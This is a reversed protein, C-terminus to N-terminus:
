HVQGNFDLVLFWDMCFVVSGSLSSVLLVDILRFVIICVYFIHESFSVSYDWVLPNVANPTKEIVLKYENETPCPNVANGVDLKNAKYVLWAWGSGFQTLAANKFQDLLAQVSGFDREILELLVGSPQGGGGPKMSQWFFDHNWIQMSNFFTFCCITNQNRKYVFVQAASNFTPLLDGKNYSKIVIEELALAALETGGIQKNLNDVYGRHHKGWHFELTQRSMYPELADRVLPYPPPKLELQATVPSIRRGVKPLTRRHLSGPFRRCGRFPLTSPASTSPLAAPGVMRASERESDRVGGRESRRVAGHSAIRRIPPPLHRWLSPFYLLVSTRAPLCGGGRRKGASDAAKAKAADLRASVADWSILKDTFTSVFDARRNQYDLYYAHEWVDVVLLPSNHEWVLPNVANPTKEVSLKYDKETAKYVLWAWGSGFQTLAANKFQDLLAQLSGFDREILELLAGTPQGGGGPEMSEWFFDHNWIQASNNFTPLPDGNNYSKVIVNELPLSELETGAIQKNLGDVYGRHHKGWHFELTRQSM